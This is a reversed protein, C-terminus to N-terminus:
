ADTIVFSATAKTTGDIQPAPRTVNLLVALHTDLTEISLTQQQGLLTTLTAWASADPLLIDVNLKQPGRGAMDVYFNDGGPIEVVTVRGERSEQFGDRDVTFTVGGFSAM